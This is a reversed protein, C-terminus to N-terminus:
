GRTVTVTESVVTFRDVPGSFTLEWVGAFTFVDTVALFHGDSVWALPVAFPGITEGDMRRHTVSLSLTDFGAVLTGDPAIVYAHVVTVDAPSSELAVDLTYPGFASRQTLLGDLDQSQPSVTVLAATLGLVTVFAAVDRGLRRKVQVASLTPHRLATRVRLALVGIVVVTFLKAGLLNGYTTTVLAALSDLIQAAMVVGSVVTVGAAVFAATAFKAAGDRVAVPDHRWLWWLWAVGGFWVSAAALHVTDAALLVPTVGYTLQHGDFVQAAVVAVVPVSVFLGGSRTLWLTVSLLFLAAARRYFGGSADAFVTDWVDSLGAPAYVWWSAVVGSVLAAVGGAAAFLGATRRGQAQLLGAPLVLRGVLVFGLAVLGAVYTIARLAVQVWRTPDREVQSVVADLLDDSLDTASGVRFRFPHSVRHGDQAIVQVSLVYAGADLVPLTVTVDRGDVKASVGAIVQADADFLRAADRPLTVTESYTLTAQSPATVYVDGDRLTTSLLAAHAFAATAFPLVVLWALAALAGARFGFAVVGRTLTV